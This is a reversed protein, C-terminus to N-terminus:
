GFHVASIHAGMVVDRYPVQAVDDEVAGLIVHLPLLHEERPHCARAQPAQTWEVLRTERRDTTLAMSEVLWEDFAKSAEIVHGQPARVARLLTRLNHYSMGSGLILVGEDRLPALARGMRVHTAPDLGDKLSLQFTPIDANPYSLKLPVFTGHDFGRSADKATEFGAQQLKAIVEGAVEPAGPAPWQVEYTEPPFGYYDYLMPPNAATMVTPVPAEWHASILLIARPKALAGVGLGKFYAAMNDWM